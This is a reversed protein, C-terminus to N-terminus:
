YILQGHAKRHHRFCLWTVELPKNYDTHHGQSNPDKCVECPEKILKGDRVANNVANRAIYKEPNTEQRHKRQYELAKLKREETQFRKKEYAKLKNRNESKYYREQVQKKRCVKCINLHGDKMSRNVYFETLPKYMKCSYCEKQIM